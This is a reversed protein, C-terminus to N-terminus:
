IRLAGQTAELFAVEAQSRKEPAKNQAITRAEGMMSETGWYAVIAGEAMWQSMWRKWDAPLRDTTGGPAGAVLMKLRLSPNGQQWDWLEQAFAVKGQEDLSGWTKELSKAMFDEYIREAAYDMWDAWLLLLSQYRNDELPMYDGKWIGKKGKKLVWSAWGSRNEERKVAYGLSSFYDITARESPVIM